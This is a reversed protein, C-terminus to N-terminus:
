RRAAETEVAAARARERLTDMAERVESAMRANPFDRILELGITLADQWRRENVAFRFQVGLQLLKEKFVHRAADQLQQAEEPTMYQDLARLVDIAHDTDSRRVAEDWERKLELKHQERMATLRDYLARVKANGPVVHALRDIEAKAREWAHGGFHEEILKVAESLREEFAHSRTAELESRMLDAEHKNGFRREVEDILVSASDWQQAAIDARVAERVQELEKTRFVFSRAADSLRATESILDLKELQAASREQLERVEDLQRALTVEIKLLLPTIVMAILVFFLWAGGAVALWGRPSVEIGTIGLILVAGAAILAAICVINYLWRLQSFRDPSM